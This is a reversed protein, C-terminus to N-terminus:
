SFSELLSILERIDSGGRTALVVAQTAEPNGRIANGLATTAAIQRVFAAAVEPTVAPVPLATQAQAPEAAEYLREISTQWTQIQTIRDAELEANLARINEEVPQAYGGQGQVLIRWLGQPQPRSPADYGLRQEVEKPKALGVAVTLALTQADGNLRKFEVVDYRGTLHLFCRLRLLADGGPFFKGMQWALVKELNAFANAPAIGPFCFEALLRAAELGPFQNIFHTFCEETTGVFRRESELMRHM